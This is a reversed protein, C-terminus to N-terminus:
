LGWHGAGAGNAWIQRACAVQVSVPAYSAHGYGTHCVAWTGDIFQYLGSASSVPNEARPNFGSERRVIYCSPLTTGNCVEIGDVYQGSHSSPPYTAPPRSRTKTTRQASRQRAERAKRAVEQETVRKYWINSNVARVWQGDLFQQYREAFARVKAEQRLQEARDRHRGLGAPTVPRTPDAGAGGGVPPAFMVTAMVIAFTFCLAGLLAPRKKM